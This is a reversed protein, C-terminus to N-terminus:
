GKRAARNGVKLARLRLAQAITQRRIRQGPKARRAREAADDAAREALIQARTM